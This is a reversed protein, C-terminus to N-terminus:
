HGAPGIFDVEEIRNVDVGPHCRYKAIVIKV